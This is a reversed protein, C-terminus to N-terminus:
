PAPSRGQAKKIDRRRKVDVWGRPMSIGHNRLGDDQEPAFARAERRLKGVPGFAEHRNGAAGEELPLEVPELAVADDADQEGGPVLGVHQISVQGRPGDVPEVDGEGALGGGEAGAAGEFVDFREEGGVGDEDEVAVGERGAEIKGCLPFINRANEM